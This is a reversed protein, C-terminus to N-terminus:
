CGEIEEEGGGASPAEQNLQINEEKPEPILDIQGKTIQIIIRNYNDWAKKCWPNSQVAKKAFTYAEYLKDNNFKEESLNVYKNCLAENMKYYESQSAKTRNSILALGIVLILVVAFLYKVKM